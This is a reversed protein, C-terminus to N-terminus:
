KKKMQQRNFVMEQQICNSYQYNAKSSHAQQANVM